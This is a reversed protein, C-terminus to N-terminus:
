NPISYAVWKLNQIGLNSTKFHYRHALMVNILLTVHCPNILENNQLIIVIDWIYSHNCISGHKRHTQESSICATKLPTRETEKGLDAVMVLHFYIYIYEEHTQVMRKSILPTSTPRCVADFSYSSTSFHTYPSTIASCAAIWLINGIILGSINDGAFRTSQERSDGLNTEILLGCPGSSGTHCLLMALRGMWLSYMFPTTALPVTPFLSCMHFM